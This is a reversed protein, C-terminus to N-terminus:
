GSVWFLAYETFTISQVLVNIPFYMHVYKYLAYIYVYM